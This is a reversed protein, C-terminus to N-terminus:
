WTTARCFALPWRMGPSCQSIQPLARFSGSDFARPIQESQQCNMRPCMSPLAAQHAGARCAYRLRERLDAGNKGVGSRLLGPSPCM